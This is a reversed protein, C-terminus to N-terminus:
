YGKQKSEQAAKATNYLLKGGAHVADELSTDACGGLMLTGVLLLAGFSVRFSFNVM